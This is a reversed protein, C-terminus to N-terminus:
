LSLTYTYNYQVSSSYTVVLPPSWYLELPILRKKKRKQHSPPIVLPVLTCLALFWQRRTGIEQILLIWIHFESAAATVTCTGFDTSFKWYFGTYLKSSIQETAPVPCLMKVSKHENLRWVHDSVESDNITPTDLWTGICRIPTEVVSCEFKMIFGNYKQDLVIDGHNGRFASSWYKSQIEYV